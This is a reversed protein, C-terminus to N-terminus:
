SLARALAVVFIGAAAVSVLGALLAGGIAVARLPGPRSSAGWAFLLAAVGVALMALDGLLGAPAWVVSAVATLGALLAVVHRVQNRSSSDGASM